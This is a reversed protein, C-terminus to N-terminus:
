RRIWIYENNTKTILQGPLTPICGPADTGPEFGVLVRGNGSNERKEHYDRYDPYDRAQRNATPAVIRTGFDCLASQWGWAVTSPQGFGYVQGFDDMLVTCGALGYTDEGRACRLPDPETARLLSRAPRSSDRTARCSGAGWTERSERPERSLGSLGAKM